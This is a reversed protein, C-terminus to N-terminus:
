RNLQYILSPLLSVCAFALLANVLFKTCFDEQGTFFDDLFIRADFLGLIPHDIDLYTTIAGLIIDVTAPVATWALIQSASAYWSSGPPARPFGEKFRPHREQPQKDTMSNISVHTKPNNRGSLPTPSTKGEYIKSAISSIVHDKSKLLQTLAVLEDPEQLPYAKSYSPYPSPIHACKPNYPSTDFPGLPLTSHQDFENELTLSNPLLDIQASVMETSPNGRAMTLDEHTTHEDEQALWLLFSEARNLSQKLAKNERKLAM